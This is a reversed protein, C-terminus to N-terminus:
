LTQSARPLALDSPEDIDSLTTGVFLSWGLNAIRAITTAAVTDTSWAIDSFLSPDTRALGLLVYGGDRAPYIVADHGELHAAAAALRKSDLAPCDTGILLVREGDDIVRRAAAALRQGLDGSGQDSLRVGAPRFGAWEPDDPHPTVCLETALGAADAQVLTDALMRQALRAAGAKGLLPILRTKAKGAVPAKAFIVIRTAVASM